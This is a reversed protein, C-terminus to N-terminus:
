APGPGVKEGAVSGSLYGGFAMLWALLPYVIIREAGGPGLSVQVLTSYYGGFEIIVGLLSLAGLIVALYRLNSRILRASFILAIGGPVFAVIAGVSHIAVNVNEPSGIALLVGVGPLLFLAMLGRRGTDRLLLYSGALWGVGWVLGAAEVLVSTNATTAALDSIANTHVSYGPYLAEALSIALFMVTGALMYLLGATRV